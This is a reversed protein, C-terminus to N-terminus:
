DFIDVEYDILANYLNTPIRGRYIDAVQRIISEKYEKYANFADIPNDFHGVFSRNSFPDACQAVFKNYRKELSVGIPYKGRRSDTKLILSNIDHSVFVCAEPRYVKNGKILIDKDLEMIKGEIEYYNEDYWSAFNQFNHWEDCVTCDKYTPYRVSKNISYCRDLMKVWTNYQPAVKGNIKVKYIGEGIYGNNCVTRDYVNRVGGSKFHNWTTSVINGHKIFKVLIDHRSKYEIIEMLSGYRNEKKLGIREKSLNVAKM